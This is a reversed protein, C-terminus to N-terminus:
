KHDHVKVSRHVNPGNELEDMAWRHGINQWCILQSKRRISLISFTASQMKQIHEIERRQERVEGKGSNERLSMQKGNNM